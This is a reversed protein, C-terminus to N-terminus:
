SGLAGALECLSEEAARLADDSDWIAWQLREVPTARRDLVGPDARDTAAGLCAFEELSAAADALWVTSPSSEM